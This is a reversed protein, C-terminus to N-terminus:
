STEPDYFRRGKECEQKWVPIFSNLNHLEDESFDRQFLCCFSGAGSIRHPWARYCPTETLHSQHEKLCEVEVARFNPFRKLFWQVVKENEETSYTCTMYSLYGRSSVLSSAHALIKKQRNSNMNITAPHFCGTELKGKVLLSQGSCPADVIVLQASNPYRQSFVETGLTSAFVPAISCRKLNSILGPLRKGIVENCILLEPQFLKWAFIAKGGPSSCLDIITEVNNKIETLSAGAFISSTDACYYAGENHLQHAGPRESSEVRNVFSPQWPYPRKSQFTSQLPKEAVWILSTELEAPELVSSVFSIREEVTEFSKDAIKQLGKPVQEM